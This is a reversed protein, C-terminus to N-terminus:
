LLSGIESQDNSELKSYGESSELLDDSLYNNYVSSYVSKKIICKKAIRIKISSQITIEKVTKKESYCRYFPDTFLAVFINPKKKRRFYYSQLNSIKLM